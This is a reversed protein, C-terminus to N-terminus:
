KDRKEELMSVINWIKTRAYVPLNPDVSIEDMISIATAIRVNVEQSEDNLVKKAEEIKMRVNRPVGREEMLEDMAKIIEKMIGGKEDYYIV